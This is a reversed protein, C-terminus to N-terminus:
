GFIFSVPEQYTEKLETILAEIEASAEDYIQQGNVTVGGLLQIEGHKKMNSGWQQKILATAYAKLWKDNFANESQDPDIAEYIEMGLKIGAVMNQAGRYVVLKNRHKTFEFRAEANILSDVEALNTMTMFYNIMDLPQFPSMNQMMFQHQYGFLRDSSSNTLLSMPLIKSVVLVNSPLIIHGADVDAQTIEYGVWKRESGNYHFDVWQQIADDIRDHVQSQEVNIKIVPKGLKRLCYEILDDRSNLM